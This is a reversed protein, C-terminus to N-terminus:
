YMGRSAQSARSPSTRSREDEELVDSLRTPHHHRMGAWEGYGAGSYDPLSVSPGYSPDNPGATSTGGPRAMSSSPIGYRQALEQERAIDSGVDYDDESGEGSQQSHSRAHGFSAGADRYRTPIRRGQSDHIYNGDQDVLWDDEGGISSTDGVSSPVYSREGGSPSMVGSTPTRGGPLFSGDHQYFQDEPATTPSPLGAATSGPTYTHPQLPAPSISPMTARAATSGPAQSANPHAPQYTGQALSPVDPEHHLRSPETFPDTDTPSQPDEYSYGGEINTPQQHGHVGGPAVHQSVSGHRSMGPVMPVVQVGGVLTPQGERLSVVREREEQERRGLEEWARRAEDKSISLERQMEQVMKNAKASKQKETRLQELAEERAAREVEIAKRLEGLGEQQREQESRTEYFWRQFKRESSARLRQLEVVAHFLNAGAASLDTIQRSMQQTLSQGALEEQNQELRRIWYSTLGEWHSSLQEWREFAHPFTSVTPDRAQGDGAVRAQTSSPGASAGPRAQSASGSTQRAHASSSQGPRASTSAPASQQPAARPQGQSLSPGRSRAAAAPDQPQGRGPSMVPGGTSAQPRQPGATTYNPFAAEASTRGLAPETRGYDQTQGAVGAAAARREANKRRQEEQQARQLQEEREKAAEAEAQKRATEREQRARMIQQPTRMPAPAQQVPVPGAASRAGGNAARGNGGLLDSMQANEEALDPTFPNPGRLAEELAYLIAAQTRRSIRLAPHPAGPDDETASNRRSNAAERASEWHEQATDRPSSASVQRNLDQLEPTRRLTHPISGSSSSPRSLPEHQRYYHHAQQQRQQLSTTYPEYRDHTEHAQPPPDAASVSTSLAALPIQFTSAGSTPPARM